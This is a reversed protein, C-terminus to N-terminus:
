KWLVDHMFTYACKFLLQVNVLLILTRMNMEIGVRLEHAAYMHEMCPM